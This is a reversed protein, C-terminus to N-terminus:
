GTFPSEVIKTSLSLDQLFFIVQNIAISYNYVVQVEVKVHYYRLYVDRDFSVIWLNIQKDKLKSLPTYFQLSAPGAVKTVSQNCTKQITRICNKTKTISKQSRPYLVLEQYPDGPALSGGVPPLVIHMAQIVIVGFYQLLLQIFDLFRFFNTIM